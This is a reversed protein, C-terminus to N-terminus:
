ETLICVRDAKALFHQGIEKVISLQGATQFIENRVHGTEPSVMKRSISRLNEVLHGPANPLQLGIGLTHLLEDPKEVRLPLADVSLGQAPQVYVHLSDPFVRDELVQPRLQGLQHGPHAPNGAYGNSDIEVLIELRLCGGQQLDVLLSKM